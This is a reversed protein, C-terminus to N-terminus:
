ASVTAYATDFLTTCERAADRWQETAPDLVQMLHEAARLRAATELNRAIEIHAAWTLIFTRLPTISGSEVALAFVENKQQEMEPLRHPAVKALAARLAEPTHAPAPILEADEPHAHHTSM